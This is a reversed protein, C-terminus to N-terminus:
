VCYQNLLKILKAVLEVISAIQLINVDGILTYYITSINLCILIVKTTNSFSLLFIFM